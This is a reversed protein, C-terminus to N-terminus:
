HLVMGESLRGRMADLEVVELYFDRAAIFARESSIKVKGPVDGANIIDTEEVRHFIFENSNYNSFARIGDRDLARVFLFIDRANLRWEIRSESPKRQRWYTGGDNPKRSLYEGDLYQNIIDSSVRLHEHIIYQLWMGDNLPIEEITLIPGADFDEVLEHLTVGTKEGDFILSWVGGHGKYDPLIATHINLAVKPIKFESPLIKHPYSSSLLLEIGKPFSEALSQQKKRERFKINNGKCLGRIEPNSRDGPIVVLKVSMDRRKLITKLTNIGEIGNIYLVVDDM